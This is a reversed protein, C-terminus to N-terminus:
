ETQETKQSEELAQCLKSEAEDLLSLLEKESKQYKALEILFRWYLRSSESMLEGRGGGFLIMEGAKDYACLRIAYDKKALSVADRFSVSHYRGLFPSDFTKPYLFHRSAFVLIDRRSAKGPELVKRLLKLYAEDDMDSGDDGKEGKLWRELSERDEKIRAKPDTRRYVKLATEDSIDENKVARFFAKVIELRLRDLDAYGPSFIYINSRRGSQTDRVKTIVTNDNTRVDGVYLAILANDFKVPKISLSSYLAGVTESAFRAIPQQFERRMDEPCHAYVKILGDAQRVVPSRMRQLIEARTLALVLIALVIKV